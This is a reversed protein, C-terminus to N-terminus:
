KLRYKGSGNLKHTTPRAVMLWQRFLVNSKELKQGKTIKLKGVANIAAWHFNDLLLKKIIRPEASTKAAIEMNKLYKFGSEDLFFIGM